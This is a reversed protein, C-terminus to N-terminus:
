VNCYKYTVTGTGDTVSTLLRMNFKMSLIQEKYYM